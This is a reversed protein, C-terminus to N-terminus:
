RRMRMIFSLPRALSPMRGAAREFEDALPHRVLAVAVVWAPCVLLALMLLRVFAPWDPPTVADLVAAITGCALTVALSPMLARTFDRHHIAFYRKQIAMNAPLGALAALVMSWGFSNLTGDYVLFICSARALLAAASPLAAILPRGIAQLAAVHFMSVLVISWAACILSVLPACDLWKPGYLFRVVDHAYIATVSLLPWACVSMYAMAKCLLPAVPEGRHHAQALHRVAAYNATPGAVQMFIRATGNARSLLGVDNAGSAKGLWLEPLASSVKDLIGGIIAGGGFGVVQRWGAFSPRWPAERPRFFAYGAGTVLINILNAWAMSMYSFGAYAMWLVSIAYAGTGLANVCAQENARYDRALLTQTISGFPIFFFGCALVRMVEQTRPEHLYDAIWGSAAFMGAGLLWSATILVGAAAGIREPTLAKEQLLYASVGFDRLTHAIALLVAAMSFIGIETPSLLRALVLTVLFLVAASGNSSLFTTLLSLRLRSM